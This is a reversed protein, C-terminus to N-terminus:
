LQSEIPLHRVLRALLRRSLSAAPEHAYQRMEGEAEGEWRIKGSKLFVRYSTQPSKEHRFLRGLEAVLGDDSFLVGMEANL